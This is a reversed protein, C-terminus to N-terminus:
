PTSSSPPPLPSSPPSKGENNKPESSSKWPLETFSLPSFPINQSITEFWSSKKSGREWDKDTWGFEKLAQKHMADSIQYQKQYSEVARKEAPTVRDEKLIGVLLIKYYIFHNFDQQEKLKMLLDNSTISNWGLMLTPHAFFLKKLDSKKWMFVTTPEIATVTASAKSHSEHFFELDGLLQGKKLYAIHHGISRVDCLGNVIVMVDDIETNEKVLEEGQKFTRWSGRSILKRFEHPTFSKKFLDEYIEKEEGKVEEGRRENILRFIQILNLLLFVAGWLLNPWFRPKIVFFNVYIGCLGACILFVRLWLIDTFMLAILSLLSGFHAVWKGGSFLRSFLNEQSLKGQVGYKIYSSEYEERMQIMKKAAETKEEIVKSDKPTIISELRQTAQKTSSPSEGVKGDQKLDGLPYYETQNKEPNSSPPPKKPSSSLYRGFFQLDRCVVFFFTGPSKFKLSSRQKRHSKLLQGFKSFLYSGCSDCSDRSFPIQM